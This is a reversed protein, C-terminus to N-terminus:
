GSEVPCATCRMKTAVRENPSSRQPECQEDSSHPAIRSNSSVRRTM